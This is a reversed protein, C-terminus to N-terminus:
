AEAALRSWLERERALLREALETERARRFSGDAFRQKLTAWGERIRALQEDLEDLLEEELLQRERLLALLGANAEHRNVIITIGVLGYTLQQERKAADQEEVLWMGDMDFSELEQSLRDAHAAVEELALEFPRVDPQLHYVYYAPGGYSPDIKYESQAFAELVTAESVEHEGYGALTDDIVYFVGKEEDFGNFLSYHFWHFKQWAMSDPLWGFLDVNLSLSLGSRLVERLEELMRSEDRFHRPEIRRIVGTLPFKEWETDSMYYLTDITPYRFERDTAAQWRFYRYLNLYAADRYSPHVSQAISFAQNLMCNMWFDRFPKRELTLKM